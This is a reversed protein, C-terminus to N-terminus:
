LNQLAPRGVLRGQLPPKAQLERRIHKQKADDTAQGALIPEIEEEFIEWRDYAFSHLQDHQPAPSIAAQLITISRGCLGM